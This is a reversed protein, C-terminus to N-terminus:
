NMNGCYPCKSKEIYPSYISSYGMSLNLSEDMYVKFCSKCTKLPSNSDAQFDYPSVHGTATSGLFYGRRVDVTEQLSEVKKKLKELDDKTQQSPPKALAKEIQEKTEKAWDATSTLGKKITDTEEKLNDRQRKIDDKYSQIERDVSIQKIAFLAIVIAAIISVITVLLTITGISRDMASVTAQYFQVLNQIDQPSVTPAPAIIM